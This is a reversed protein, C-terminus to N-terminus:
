FWNSFWVRLKHVIQAYTTCLDHAFNGSNTCLNHVFYIPWVCLQACNTCLSRSSQADNGRPDLKQDQISFGHLCKAEIQTLKFSEPQSTFLRRFSFSLHFWFSNIQGLFWRFQNWREFFLFHEDKDAGTSSIGILIVFNGVIFKGIVSVHSKDTLHVVNYNEWGNM